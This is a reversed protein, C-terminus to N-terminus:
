FLFLCILSILLANSIISVYMLSSVLPDKKNIEFKLYSNSERPNQYALMVSSFTNKILYIIMLQVLNFPSNKNLLITVIM